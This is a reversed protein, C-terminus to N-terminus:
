GAGPGGARAPDQHQREARARGLGRRARGTRAAPAAAGAQAARAHREPQHQQAANQDGPSSGYVVSHTDLGDRDDACQEQRRQRDSRAPFGNVPRKTPIGYSERRGDGLPQLLREPIRGVTADQRRVHVAPAIRDVQVGNPPPEPDGTALARRRLVSAPRAPPARCRAPHPQRAPGRRRARAVTAPWAPRSRRRRRCRDRACGADVDPRAAGPDALVLVREVHGQPELRQEFLGAQPDDQGAGLVHGSEGIDWGSGM